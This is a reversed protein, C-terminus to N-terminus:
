IGQCRSILDRSIGCRIMPLSKAASLFCGSLGLRGQFSLTGACLWIGAGPSTGAAQTGLRTRTRGLVLWMALVADGPLELSLLVFTREICGVRRTMAPDIWAWCKKERWFSPHDGKGQLSLYVHFCLKATGNTWQKLYSSPKHRFMGRHIHVSKALYWLHLIHFLIIGGLALTWTPSYYSGLPGSTGDDKVSSKVTIRLIERSM